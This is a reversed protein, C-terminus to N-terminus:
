YDVTVEGSMLRAVLLDRSNNLNTIQIQNKSIKEFYKITQSNFKEMVNPPPITIPLEKIMGSNISTVISSTSGLIQYPYNKLFLYLYEKSIQANEPLIFHAIAENTTMEETTISVRGLTMKFSLLVTNKPIIPIRFKKIAELTLCENTEFTFVGVAGMDKISVWKIGLSSKSFWIEEKRPPTRGIGIKAYDGLFGTEWDDDVEDIFWHRYLTEAMAELTKNQRHLLNIKDDLSSLVGAIAKQEAISPLSIPISEVIKRSAINIQVSGHSVQTLLDFGRKSSLFYYLYKLSIINTNPRLILLAQSIIGKPDKEQIISIKGVTGSCSIILDDTHVQFRKLKEFKEENIFYRFYRIGQIANIQEYVPIGEIQMEDRKLASGFPGRIYGKNGLVEGLTFKQWDSM